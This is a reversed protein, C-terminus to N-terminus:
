LCTKKTRVPRLFLCQIQPEIVQDNAFHKKNRKEKIICFIFLGKIMNSNCDNSSDFTSPALTSGNTAACQSVFPSSNTSQTATCHSAVSEMETETSETDKSWTSSDANDSTEVTEIGAVANFTGKIEHIVISGLTTTRTRKRRQKHLVINKNEDKTSNLGKPTAEGEWQLEREKRQIIRQKVICGVVCIICICFAGGGILGGLLLDTNYCNSLIQTYM